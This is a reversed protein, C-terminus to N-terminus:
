TVGIYISKKKQAGNIGLTLSPSFRQASSHLAAEGGKGLGERGRGEKGKGKGRGEGGRGEIKEGGKEEGGRGEGGGLTRRPQSQLLLDAGGPSRHRSGTARAAGRGSARGGIPLLSSLPHLLPFRM